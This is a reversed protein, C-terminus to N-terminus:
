FATISIDLANCIIKKDFNMKKFIIALIIKPSKGQYMHQNLMDQQQNIIKNSLKYIDTIPIKMKQLYRYVEKNDHEKILKTQQLKEYLQINKTLINKQIQFAKCIESIDRIVSNNYLSRIICCAMMAKRNPGRFIKKNCLEHFYHKANTSIHATTTLTM